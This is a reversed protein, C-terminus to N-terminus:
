GRRGERRRRATAAARATGRGRAATPGCAPAPPRDRRRGSGRVAASRSAPRARARAPSRGGPARPSLSGSTASYTSSVAACIADARLQDGSQVPLRPCDATRRRSRAAARPPPPGASDGGLTAQGDGLADAVDDGAPEGVERWDDPSLHTLRRAIVDRISQPIALRGEATSKSRVGEVSLLRVIEGVFLPNGETEEYLAALLPASAIQAATQEIYEAVEPESLGVLALRRTVPERALETLTETLPRGPIPDVDRYAALLLIHTSQLERALFRLFLLSPADAAHLDDLVLLIPRAESSNRLFQATADFLRFRAAEPESPSPPDPLDPFRQRLEPLVQALQEAGTGLHARLAATEDERVQARLAQVWPWYAPAGGAEWCRGVLVRAGRVRARRMVEEALRSKGIGPEGVLLFLRGRGAFADELGAILEALESGRGVFAGRSAEVPSEAAAALELKPDQELIAQHLDRLQRGPEIGLEEVLAWRGTRYAELAEAQRACRYLCLMLQGRLRERLPYLDVM